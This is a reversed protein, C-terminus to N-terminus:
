AIQKLLALLLSLVKFTFDIRIQNRETEKSHIEYSYYKDIVCICIYAVGTPKDESPLPGANGTISVAIDSKFKNMAGTAMELATEKSIAGFKDLTVQNVNALKVKSANSYTILGGLYIKSVGSVGVLHSGIMGGTASECTAITINKEKLIDIIEQVFTNM